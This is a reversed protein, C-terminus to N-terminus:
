RFNSRHPCEVHAYHSIRGEVSPSITLHDNDSSVALLGSPSANSKLADRIADGIFKQVTRRMPRAGLARHIGRRVLFEIAPEPM